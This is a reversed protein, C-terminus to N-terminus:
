KDLADHAICSACEGCYRKGGLTACPLVSCTKLVEVYGDRERTVEALQARLAETVIAVGCLGCLEDKM